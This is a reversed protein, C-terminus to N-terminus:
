LRYHNLVALLRYLTHQLDLLKDESEYYVALERYYDLLSISGAELAKDLLSIHNFQALQTQYDQVSENLALAKQHRAQWEHYAQLQQDVVREEAAVAHAKAYAITNKHEWLPISVGLSFGQLTHNLVSERMYGLHFKPLAQARSLSVQQQRVDHEKEFWHLRDLNNELEEYWKEFDEDPLQGEFIRNQFSIVLGGNLQRLRQILAERERKVTEMEKRWTLLYLRAKNLALLSTEGTQWKKEYADATHQAHAMRQLLTHQRANMYTLDVCVLHADLLLEKRQQQYALEVKENENRAIQRAHWYYSPFEVTQKVAVDVKDGAAVPKGWLYHFELEPNSLYYGTQNGTLAADSQKRLASLTTNNDEIELLIDQISSQAILMMGIWLFLFGSMIIRKLSM